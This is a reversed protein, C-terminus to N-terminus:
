RERRRLVLAAAVLLLLAWGLSLANGASAFPTPALAPPVTGDLRAAVDRGASQVVVGHSDVVASIGNTTARLVPLGEEIARLRAQALHQPPGWDGFWGDNSPNFIYEPRHAGDVVAGPFIIEYCIQVGAKGLVGLDLTAPGPGPTFDMDGPVLRELGLPKLLWRMPLYEGYPVLHAKAYSGTIRGASDLGTVVNRAGAVRNGAMILDISGTLLQAQPGILRGIRLRALLPDAAFTTAQYYELPYGERLFDPVGSEPWLVLRPGAPGIARSLRATKQFQDEFYTPDNLEPQPINPQVVTYAVHGGEQPAKAPGHFALALLALAAGAPALRWPSREGQWLALVAQGVVAALLAALASLAYTGLWPLLAALGPHAFDGLLSAALPNWPFGTFLWGRLA